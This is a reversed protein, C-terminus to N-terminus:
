ASFLPTEGRKEKGVNPAARYRSVRRRVAGAELGLQDCIWTFSGPYYSDSSFWELAAKRLYRRVIRRDGIDIGALDGLSRKM